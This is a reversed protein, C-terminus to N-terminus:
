SSSCLLGLNRGTKGKDFHAGFVNALPFGDKTKLQVGVIPKGANSQHLEAFDGEVLCGARTINDFTYDALLSQKVLVVGTDKTQEQNGRRVDLKPTVNVM